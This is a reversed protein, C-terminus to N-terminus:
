ILLRRFQLFLPRSPLASCSLSVGTSVLIINTESHYFGNSANDSICPLSTHLDDAPADSEEIETQETLDSAFKPKQPPNSLFFNLMLVGATLAPLLKLFKSFKHFM